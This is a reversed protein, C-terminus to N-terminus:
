SLVMAERIEKVTPTKQKGFPDKAQVIMQTVVDMSHLLKALLLMAQINELFEYRTSKLRTFLDLIKNLPMPHLSQAIKTDLLEKFLVFTGSIGPASYKAKPAMILSSAPCSDLIQKQPHKLLSTQHFWCYNLKGQDLCHLFRLGGQQGKPGIHPNLFGSGLQM